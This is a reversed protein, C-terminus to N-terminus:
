SSTGRALLTHARGQVRDALHGDGFHGHVSLVAPFPGAGDPVYLCATVYFKPRSQYIVKDVRYGKMRITGLVKMDLDLTDDPPTGLLEWLGARLTRRWSEWEARDGAPPARLVTEGGGAENPQARALSVRTGTPM